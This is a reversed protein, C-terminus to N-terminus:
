EWAKEKLMRQEKVTRFNFYPLLGQDYPNVEALIEERVRETLPYVEEPVPVAEDSLLVRFFIAPDGSWDEDLNYRIRVVNPALAVQARGVAKEIEAEDIVWRPVIAM